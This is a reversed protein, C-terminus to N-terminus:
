FNYINKNETFFFFILHNIFLLFCIKKFVVFMCFIFFIYKQCMSKENNWTYAHEHLTKMIMISETISETEEMSEGTLNGGIPM